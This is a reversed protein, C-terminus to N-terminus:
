SKLCQTSDKCRFIDSKKIQYLEFSRKNKKSETNMSKETLGIQESKSVKIIAPM